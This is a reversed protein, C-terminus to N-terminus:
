TAEKAKTADNVRCIHAPFAQLERAEGDQSVCPQGPQAHCYRCPVALADERIRSGVWNRM